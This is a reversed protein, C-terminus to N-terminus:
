KNEKTGAATEQGTEQTGEGAKDGMLEDMRQLFADDPQIQNGDEDVEVAFLFTRADNIEYSCTVLTYLTRAPYTIEQSYGCPKVMEHVFADFSEQSKFRTKRVIPQAEGYYAAVAKLRIERDPTYISFFQHEKFYAEDKYRNVDKFMSGNKMNHGYLINNRGEFDGESEYDLYISGAVSAEGNFDHKLYFDNDTGQVIPYSIKTDPIHIWGITDPNEKKLTDFDYPSQYEEKEPETELEQKETEEITITEQTTQAAERALREYEEQARKDALYSRLTLGGSVLFVLLAVCVLIKWLTDRGSKKSDEM